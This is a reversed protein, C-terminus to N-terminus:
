LIIQLNITTRDYIVIIKELQIVTFDNDCEEKLKLYYHWKNKFGSGAKNASNDIGAPMVDALLITKGSKIEDISSDLSHFLVEM